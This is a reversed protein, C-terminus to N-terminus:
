HSRLRLVVRLTRVLIVLDTGLDHQRAYELDIALKRPLIDRVYTTEPDRSASALMAEEDFFTLQSPGTLGPCVSLVLQEDPAYLAVFRPDEPRPGVLRMDGRLVNWLQPFEDVKTRRLVRGVRTVRPDRAATIHPGQGAAGDIMTRFKYLSFPRGGLGIRTARHLVPGPSDVRIALALLLLVPLFLVLLLGALVLDVLREARTPPM